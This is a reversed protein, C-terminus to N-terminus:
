ECAFYISTTVISPTNLKRGKEDLYDTQRLGTVVVVKKGDITKVHWIERAKWRSGEGSCALDAEANVQNKDNPNANPLPKVSLLKCNTEYFTVTGPGVGMIREVPVNNKEDKIDAKRCANNSADTAVWFGSFEAPLNAAEAGVPLAVALATAVAFRLRVGCAM